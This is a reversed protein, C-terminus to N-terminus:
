GFVHSNRNTVEKREGEKLTSLSYEGFETRLLDTVEYGLAALTRRIQRKRGEQMIVRYTNPPLNYTEVSKKDADTIELESIGDWLEIGADIIVRDSKLLPADLTVYYTKTKRNKPHTLEHALTGDNTLLLLGRSNKDLRGVPKLHHVDEPLLSYITPSNGQPQRSVIYGAPKNFLITTKPALSIYKNDIQVTDLSNVYQGIQAPQGNVYVKGDNIYEDAARRSVGTARAIYQNIRM